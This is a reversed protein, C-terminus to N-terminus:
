RVSSSQLNRLYRLESYLVHRAPYNMGKRDIIYIPEGDQSFSAFDDIFQETSVIKQKTTKFKMLLYRAAQTSSFEHGAKIVRMKSFKVLQILYRIEGQLDRSSEYEQFAISRETHGLGISAEGAAAANVPVAVFLLTLLIITLATEFGRHPIMDEGETVDRWCRRNPGCFFLRDSKLISKVVQVGLCHKGM